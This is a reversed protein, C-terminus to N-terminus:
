CSQPRGKNKLSSLLTLLPSISPQATLPIGRTAGDEKQWQGEWGGECRKRWATSSALNSSCCRCLDLFVGTLAFHCVKLCNSCAVAICLVGGGFFMEPATKCHTFLLRAHAGSFLRLLQYIFTVSPYLLPPCWPPLCLSAKETESTM